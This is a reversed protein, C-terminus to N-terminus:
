KHMKDHKTYLSLFVCVKRLIPDDDSIIRKEKSGDPLTRVLVLRKKTPKSTASTKSTASESGSAIENSLVTRKIEGFLAPESKRKLNVSTTVYAVKTPKDVGVADDLRSFASKPPPDPLQM